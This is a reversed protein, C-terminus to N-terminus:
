YTLVYEVLQGLRWMGIMAVLLIILYTKPFSIPPLEFTTAVDCADSYTRAFNSFPTLVWTLGLDLLQIALASSFLIVFGHMILATPDKRLSRVWSDITRIGMFAFIYIIGAIPIQFNLPIAWWIHALWLPFLSTPLM